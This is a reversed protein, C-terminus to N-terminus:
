YDVFIIFINRTMNNANSRLSQQIGTQTQM